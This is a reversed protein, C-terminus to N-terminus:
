GGLARDVKSTRRVIGRTEKSVRKFVKRYRRM